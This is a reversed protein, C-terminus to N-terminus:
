REIVEKRKEGRGGANHQPVSRPGEAYTVSSPLFSVSKYYFFQFVASSKLEGDHVWLLSNLLLHQSLGQAAEEKREKSGDGAALSSNVGGPQSM